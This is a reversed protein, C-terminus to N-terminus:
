PWECYCMEGTWDCIYLLRGNEDEIFLDTHDQFTEDRNMDAKLIRSHTGGNADFTVVNFDGDNGTSYIYMPSHDFGGHFAYYRGIKIDAFPVIQIEPRISYKPGDPTDTYAYANMPADEPWNPINEPTKYTIAM